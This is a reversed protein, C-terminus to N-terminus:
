EYEGSERLTTAFNLPWSRIKTTVSQNLEGPIVALPPENPIERYAIVCALGDIDTFRTGTTVVLKTM